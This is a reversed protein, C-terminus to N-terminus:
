PNKRRSFFICCVMDQCLCKDFVMVYHSVLTFRQTDKVFKITLLIIKRNDTINISQHGYLYLESQKGLHNLKYRSIVGISKTARQTGYPYAFLFHSDISHIDTEIYKGTYTQTDTQM